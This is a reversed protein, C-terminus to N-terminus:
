NLAGGVAFVPTFVRMLSPVRVIHHALVYVKRNRGTATWEILASCVPILLTKADHPSARSETKVRACCVTLM